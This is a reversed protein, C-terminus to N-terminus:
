SIRKWCYAKVYPPLISFPTDSGGSNVTITTDSSRCVQARGSSATGIYYTNNSGTWCAVTATATNNLDHRDGSDSNHFLLHSHAASYLTYNPLNAKTLTVSSAGGEDGAAGDDGLAYLFKDKVREWTGGFLESPDTNNESWYYSGIPYVRLLLNGLQEEILRASYTNTTKDTINTTDVISGTIPKLAAKRKIYKM